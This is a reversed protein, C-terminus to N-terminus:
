RSERWSEAGSETTHRSRRRDRARSVAVTLLGVGIVIPVLAFPVFQLWGEVESGLSSDNEALWFILVALGCPVVILAVIVKLADRVGSIRARHPNDIPVGASPGVRV